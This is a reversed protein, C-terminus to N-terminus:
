LDRDRQLKELELLLRKIKQLVEDSSREQSYLIDNLEELIKDIYQMRRKIRTKRLDETNQVTLLDENAPRGTIETKDTQSLANPNDTCLYNVTEPINQGNVAHLAGCLPFQCLLFLLLIYSKIKLIKDM